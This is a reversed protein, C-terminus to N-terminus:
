IVGSTADNMAGGDTAVAVHDATSLLLLDELEMFPVYNNHTVKKIVNSSPRTLQKSQVRDAMWERLFSHGEVTGVFVAEGLAVPDGVIDHPVTPIYGQGTATPIVLDDDVEEALRENICYNHLRAVGQALWVMNALSCGMPRQLSGWKSQMMGFAMEVRIRCQSAYFNFNDNRANLRDAGQFIPVM